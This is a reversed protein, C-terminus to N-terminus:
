RLLSDINQCYEYLAFFINSITASTAVEVGATTMFSARVEQQSAGRPTVTISITEPCIPCFNNSLLSYSQGNSNGRFRYRLRFATNLPFENDIFRYYYLYPSNMNAEFNLANNTLTAEQIDSYVDLATLQRESLVQRSGADYTARFVANCVPSPTTDFARDFQSCNQLGNPMHDIVCKEQNWFTGAPVDFPLSAFVYKCPNGTPDRNYLDCQNINSAQLNVDCYFRGSSACVAVPDNALVCQRATEDFVQGPTCRQYEMGKPTCNYYKNCCVGSPYLNGYNGPGCPAQSCNVANIYNCSRSDYFTGAACAVPVPAQDPVCEYFRDCYKPDEDTGKSGVCNSCIGTSPQPPATPVFPCLTDELIRTLANPLQNYNNLRTNVNRGGNAATLDNFAISNSGQVSVVEVNWNLNAVANYAQRTLQIRDNRSSGQSSVLIVLNNVNPRPSVTLAQLGQFTFSGGGAGNRFRSLDNIAQQPSSFLPIPNTVSTSGYGLAGIRVDGTRAGQIRPNQLFTNVANSILNFPSTPPNSSALRANESQDFLFVVDTPGCITMNSSKSVVDVTM